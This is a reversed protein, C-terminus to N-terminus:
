PAPPSFTTTRVHSFLPSQGFLHLLCHEGVFTSHDSSICFTSSNVHMTVASSPFASSASALTILPSLPSVLVVAEQFSDSAHSELNPCIRVKELAGAYCNRRRLETDWVWLM